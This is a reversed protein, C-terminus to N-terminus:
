LDDVLEFEAAGADISARRGEIRVRMEHGKDMIILQQDVFQVDPYVLEREEGQFIVTYASDNPQKEIIMSHMDYIGVSVDVGVYKGAVDSRGCATLVSVLVLAPLLSKKMDVGTKKQPPPAPLMAKGLDAVAVPAALEAAM